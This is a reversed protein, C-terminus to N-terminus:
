LIESFFFFLKLHKNDQERTVEIELDKAWLIIKRKKVGTHYSVERDLAWPNLYKMDNVNCHCILYGLQWLTYYKDLSDWQRLFCNIFNTTSDFIKM